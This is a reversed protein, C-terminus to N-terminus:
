NRGAGAQHSINEHMESRQPVSKRQELPSEPRPPMERCNVGFHTVLYDASATMDGKTMVEHLDQLKHYMEQDFEELQQQKQEETM